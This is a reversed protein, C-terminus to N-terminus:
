HRVYRDYHLATHTESLVAEITVRVLSGELFEGRKVNTQGIAMIHQCVLLVDVVYNAITHQNELIEQHALRPSYEKANLTM